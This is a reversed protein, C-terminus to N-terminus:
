DLRRVGGGEQIGLEERAVRVFDEQASLIIEPSPLLESQKETFFFSIVRADRSFRQLAEVVGRAALAVDASSILSM